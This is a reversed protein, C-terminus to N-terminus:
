TDRVSRTCTRSNATLSKCKAVTYPRLVSRLNGPRRRLGYFEPPLIGWVGRYAEASRASTLVFTTDGHQARAIVIDQGRWQQEPEGGCHEVSELRTFQPTLATIIKGIILVLFAEPTWESEALAREYSDITPSMSSKKVTCSITFLKPVTTISLKYHGLAKSIYWVMCLSALWVTQLSLFPGTM